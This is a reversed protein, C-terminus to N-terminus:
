CCPQRTADAARAPAGPSPHTIAANTSNTVRQAPHADRREPRTRQQGPQPRAAIPTAAGFVQPDPEGFAERRGAAGFIQGPRRPQHIVCPCQAVLDALADIQVGGRRHGPHQRQPVPAGDFRLDVQAPVPDVALHEVDARDGDTVIGGDTGAGRQQRACRDTLVGVDGRAGPHDALDLLALVPGARWRHFGTLCAMGPRIVPRRGPREPHRDVPQRRYQQAPQRQQRQAGPQGQQPPRHTVGGRQTRRDPRM